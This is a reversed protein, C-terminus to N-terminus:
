NGKEVTDRKGSSRSFFSDQNLTEEPEPTKSILM